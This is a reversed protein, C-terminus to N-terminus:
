GFVLFDALMYLLPLTICCLLTTGLTLIAAYESDVGYKKAMASSSAASSVAASIFLAALLSESVPVGCLRLLIVLAVSLMPSAVLKIAAVVYLTPTLVLDRFRIHSLEVGLVLMALPTTLSSLIESYTSIQPVYDAAGCLSCVTGLVIAAMIPSFLARRVSIDRPDGSLVYVGFTLLFLTSIVNYLSIYIAVEPHTPFLVVALPIGLFGCNPFVACFRSARWRTDGDKKRFCLSAIFYGAFVAIVPFAVCIGVNWGSFATLDTEVLKSFVLFPMAVYMLINTMSNLAGREIKKCKGLIFGPVILLTFLLVNALLSSFAIM